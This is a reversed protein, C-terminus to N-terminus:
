HDAGDTEVPAAAPPTDKSLYVTDLTALTPLAMLVAFFFVCLLLTGSIVKLAWDWKLHMFIVAVLSGKVMAIFLGVAINLGHTPLDVMSAGVTAVTLIALAVFVMIYLRVHKSIDTHDGAM